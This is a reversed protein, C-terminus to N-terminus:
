LCVPPQRPTAGRGHTCPRRLDERPSLVGGRWQRGEAGHAWRRDAGWGACWINVILHKNCGQLAHHAVDMRGLPHDGDLVLQVCCRIPPYLWLWNHTHKISYLSNYFTHYYVPTDQRCFKSLQTILHQIDLHDTPLLPPKCPMQVKLNHETIVKKARKANKWAQRCLMCSGTLQLKWHPASLASMQWRLEDFALENFTQLYHMTIVSQDYTKSSLTYYFLHPLVLRVLRYM